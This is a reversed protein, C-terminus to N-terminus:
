RKRKSEPGAPGAGRANKQDIAIGEKRVVVPKQIQEEVKDKTIHFEEVLILKKQVVIEEKLIPIIMKNGEYRVAPPASRLERNIQVREVTVRDHAVISEVILNKEHVTKNLIVSGTEVAQRNIRLREEVVPISTSEHEIAKGVNPKERRRM